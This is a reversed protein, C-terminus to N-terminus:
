SPLEGPKGLRLWRLYHLPEYQEFFTCRPEKHMIGRQYVYVRMGCHCDLELQLTGMDHVTGDPRTVTFGM